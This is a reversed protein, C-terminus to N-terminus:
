CEDPQMITIVPEGDDGGGIHMALTVSRARIGRGDQPVRYVEFMTRDGGRQRRAAINAMWLVDWLRGEESQGTCTGKRKEAEPSWAVCEDWVARTLAVPVRFGAERAMESVDVLYGDEIAMERSYCYVVDDEDFLNYAISNQRNPNM